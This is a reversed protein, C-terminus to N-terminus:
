TLYKYHSVYVGDATRVKSWKMGANREVHGMACSV